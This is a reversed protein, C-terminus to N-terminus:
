WGWDVGQVLRVLNFGRVEHFVNVFFINDAMSYWIRALVRLGRTSINRIWPVKTTAQATFLYFEMPTCLAKLIELDRPHQTSRQYQASPQFYELYGTLPSRQPHSLWIPFLAFKSRRVQRSLNVHYCAYCQKGPIWMRALVFIVM